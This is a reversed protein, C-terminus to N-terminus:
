GGLQGPGRVPLREIAAGVVEPLMREVGDVDGAAVGAHDHLVSRDGRGRDHRSHLAGVADHVSEVRQERRHLKEGHAGVAAVHAPERVDVGLLDSARM